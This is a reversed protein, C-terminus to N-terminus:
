VKYFLPNDQLYNKGTILAIQAKQLENGLYAAHDYLSVLRLDIVTQYIDEAKKGKIILSCQDLNYSPYYLTVIENEDRDLLIKFCGKPDMNRVLDSKSRIVKISGEVRKDYPEEKLKKEKMFLLDLGLDKPVSSRIKALFMLRSALSLEKVSGRAKDSVETTLLISVGLESAIGSLLANVGITDADMLETINGIGMLLPIDPNRSKFEYFAIISNVIGTSIVPNLILDAIINNMGLNRAKRINAEILAVKELPEEPFLQKRYNTPIVVITTESAFSAMDVVNGGDVSLIINAGASVAAEAEKADMTDISVLSHVASRVAKVAGEADDPRCEGAIMGIDIVDAGSAVYYKARKIIEEDTLLPADVIEAMIRAPFDRGIPLERILTNWPKKLLEDKYRNVAEIEKLARHRLKEKLLDDAPLKKSLKVKSLNDLVFPIDVAYRPGKFTPIGIKDILSVDESILGPLIVVDYDKIKRKKLENLIYQPKLLAAVSTSLAITESHVNSGISYKKVLNKALQGTILLVKM